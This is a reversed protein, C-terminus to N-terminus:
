EEGLAESAMETLTAPNCGAANGYFAIRKLAVRLRRIERGQVCPFRQCNDHCTHIASAELEAVRKRLAETEDTM